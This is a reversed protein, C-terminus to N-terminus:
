RRVEGTGNVMQNGYAYRATNGGDPGIMIQYYGGMQTIHRDETGIGIHDAVAVLWRAMHGHPVKHGLWEAARDIGNNTHVPLNYGRGGYGGTVM